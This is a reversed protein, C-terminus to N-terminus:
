LNRKFMGLFFIGGLLDMLISLAIFVTFVDAGNNLQFINLLGAFAAHGVGIGSFSIPLTSLFIGIPVIGILEIISVPTTPSLTIIIMIFSITNLIQLALSLIFSKKIISGNSNLKLFYSKFNVIRNILFKNNFNKIITGPKILPILKSRFIYIFFVIFLVIAQSIFVLKLSPLQHYIYFGALTSIAMLSLTSFVKSFISSYIFYDKTTSPSIEILKKIKFVEGFLTSPSICNLFLSSWSVKFIDYFKISKNADTQILLRTRISALTLQALYLFFFVTLLKINLIGKKVNEFNLQQFHLLWYIFIASIVIKFLFPKNFKM